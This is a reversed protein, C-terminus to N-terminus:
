LDELEQDLDDLDDDGDSPPQQQSNFQVYVIAIGLGILGLAIMNLSKVAALAFGLIFFLWLQKTAMMNIVTAYGVVAIFGSGVVLGVTLAHPISTKFAIQWVTPILLLGGAPLMVRLGQIMLSMLHAQTVRSLHGQRIGDEAFHVVRVILRRVLRTLWQGILALPVAVALGEAVSFQGPGCVFIAAGVSALATDPAVSSGINMWGITIMQLSGGLIIGETMHGTAVGVLTCAVLPQQFEWEDLIGDMGALFAIILIGIVTAVSM